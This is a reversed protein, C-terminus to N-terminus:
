VKFRVLSTNLGKLAWTFATGHSLRNTTPRKGRVIPNSVLDAWTVHHVFHHQSLNRVSHEQNGDILLM